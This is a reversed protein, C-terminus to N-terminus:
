ITSGRVTRFKAYDPNRQIEKVVWHLADLDKYLDIGFSKMWMEVVINPISCVRVMDHKRALVKVENENMLRANETLIPEVDQVRRVDIKRQWPKPIIQTHIM